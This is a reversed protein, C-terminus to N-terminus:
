KRSRIILRRAEANVIGVVDAYSAAKQIADLRHAIKVRRSKALSKAYAVLERKSPRPFRLLLDFRRWLAADLREPLNSTAVIWGQPHAHELEQLLAIVVRDLEGVDMLNGRSRGLADIEDLVLVCPQASAFDFLQRLHSATQGLFSGIVADFRVVLCPLKSETALARACLTKGCGPPGVFLLRTRRDVGRSQLLARMRWEALLEQVEARMSNRLVVSSLAVDTPLPTLASALLAVRPTTGTSSGNQHPSAGDVTLAGRLQDAATHHRRRAESSAIDAALDKASRLDGRAIARFLRDLESVSAM